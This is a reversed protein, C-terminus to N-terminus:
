ELALNAGIKSAKLPTAEPTETFGRGEKWARPRWGRWSYCRPAKTSEPFLLLRRTPERSRDAEEGRRLFSAPERASARAPQSVLPDIFPSRGVAWQPQKNNIPKDILEDRVFHYAVGSRQPAPRRLDTNQDRRRCLKRDDRAHKVYNLDKM